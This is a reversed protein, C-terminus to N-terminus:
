KGDYLCCNLLCEVCVGHVSWKKDFIEILADEESFSSDLLVVMCGGGGKCEM